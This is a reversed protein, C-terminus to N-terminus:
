AFGGRRVADMYDVSRWDGPTERVFQRFLDLHVPLDVTLLMASLNTPGADHCLNFFRFRDLHDYLYSTVHERHEPRRMVAHAARLTEIRVIEVAIGYPFSRPKLNTVLDYEGQDMTRQGLALLGPDTLPCDGNVRAATNLEFHDAAAVFRGCVDDTDGRYVAVGQRACWAAIPDDVARDSTAVYVRGAFAPVERTRVLSYWLLPHGDDIETLTKGPLRRSDMRCLIIAGSTM